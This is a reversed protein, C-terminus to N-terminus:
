LFGFFLLFSPFMSVKGSFAENGRKEMFINVVVSLLNFLLGM